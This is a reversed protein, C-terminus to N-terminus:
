IRQGPATVTWTQKELQFWWTVTQRGTVTDRPVQWQSGTAGQILTFGPVCFKNQASAPGLSLNEKELYFRM